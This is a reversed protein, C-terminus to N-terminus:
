RSSGGFGYPALVSLLLFLAALGGLIISSGWVGMTTNLRARPPRTESVLVSVLEGEEYDPRVRGRSGTVEYDIGDLKYAVIPYYLLGRQGDGGLFRISNDIVDFDVVTGSVLRSQAVFVGATVAVVIAIGAFALGVLRFAVALLNTGKM